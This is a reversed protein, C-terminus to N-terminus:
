GTQLVTLCGDCLLHQVQQTHHSQDGRGQQYVFCGGFFFEQQVDEPIHDHHHHLGYVAETDAVRNQFSDSNAEDGSRFLLYDVTTTSILITSQKSINLGSIWGQAITQVVDTRNYM